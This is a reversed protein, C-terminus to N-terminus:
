VTGELDTRMETGRRFVRALVFLTLALVFGASSVGVLSPGTDAVVGLHERVSGLALGIVQIVLTMWGMRALRDANQAVFPDGIEVSGVIHRFEIVFRLGLALAGLVGLLAAVVVWYSANALGARAIDTEIEGRQITLVAGIGIAVMVIAFVFLGLFLALTARAAALLPDNTTPSM